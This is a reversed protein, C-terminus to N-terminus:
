IFEFFINRYICQRVLSYVRQFINIFIVYSPILLAEEQRVSLLFVLLFPFSNGNIALATVSPISGIELAVSFRTRREQKQEM